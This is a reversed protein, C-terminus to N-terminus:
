VPVVRLLRQGTSGHFKRTLAEVDRVRRLREDEDPIEAAAVPPMGDYTRGDLARGAKKKQFGGWQKFFFAVDQDECQDRVSEVWAQDLPRAGAGSEGGV